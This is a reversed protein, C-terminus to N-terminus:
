FQHRRMGANLILGFFLYNAVLFSGGASVLPLPLGTVPLVQVAILINLFVHAAFIALLGLVLYAGFHNRSQLAIAAGRAIMLVYLVVLGACGVLGFQEGLSNFIFDAQHEPLFGLGAQTGEGWGRGMVGGSGLAIKAQIINYGAGGPAAEPNLHITLRLRQYPKLFPFAATGGAVALALLFVLLRWRLGAAYLMTLFVIGFVVATGLDPQVFILGAPVGAVLGLRLLVRWMAAGRLEELRLLALERALVLVTAIKAFEAPQFSAGGPLSIWSAAGKIRDARVLVFILVLVAGWWIPTAWRRLWSPDLFLSGVLVVVGLSWWLAQRGALYDLRPVRHVSGHLVAVGFATTLMLLAFLPWDFYRWQRRPLSFIM